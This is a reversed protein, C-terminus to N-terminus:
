NSFSTYFQTLDENTYTKLQKADLHFLSVTVNKDFIINNKLLRIAQNIQTKSIEDYKIKDGVRLYIDSAVTDKTVEFWLTKIPKSVAKITEFDNYIVKVFQDNQYVQMWSYVPLAIDLHLPYKKANQLYKELENTDLISNKSKDDFPSILNYCMLMALDVPPIGMNNPFKYPYLRLTCSVKRKSIQKFKKLFYFYNDKSKLTWDCDMQVESTIKQTRFNEKLKKDILFNVNDALKDLQNPSSQLFVENRLYVCPIIQFKKDEYISYSTKAEPITGLVKDVAVEFFKVYLKTIKLKDLVKQEAELASYNSGSKWYYFGRDVNEIKNKQCSFLTFFLLAFAIFLRM